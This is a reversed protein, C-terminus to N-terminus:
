PTPAGPGDQEATLAWQAAALQLYADVAEFGERNRLKQLIYTGSGFAALLIEPMRDRDEQTLTPDSFVGTLHDRIEEATGDFTLLTMTLERSLRFQKPTLKPM